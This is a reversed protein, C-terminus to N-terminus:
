FGPDVIPDDGGGNDNGNNGNGGAAASVDSKIYFEVNNAAGRTTATSDNVLRLTNDVAFRIHVRKINRVTCDKEEEAGECSFTTYFTGLGNIKVKDGRTLVKRLSRVFSKMVHDVDEASMGGLAETEEAVDKTTLTRTHGPVPKLYNLEPSTPDSLIKNRKYRMLAIAM